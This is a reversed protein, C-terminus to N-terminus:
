WCFDTRSHTHCHMWARTGWMQILLLCKRWHSDNWKARIHTEKNAIHSWLSNRFWFWNSYEYDTEPLISLPSGIRSIWQLPANRNCLFWTVTVFGNCTSVGKMHIYFFIALPSLLVTHELAVFSKETLLFIFFLDFYFLKLSKYRAANHNLTQAYQKSEMKCLRLFLLHFFLFTENLISVCCIFFFCQLSIKTRRISFEYSVTIRIWMYRLEFPYEYQIVRRNNRRREM